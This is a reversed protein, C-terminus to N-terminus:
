ESITLHKLFEVQLKNKPLMGKVATRLVEAYGKKGIVHKMTSEKLGGPYGSFSLYTKEDLKQQAIKLKSANTVIVTNTSVTNRAFSTDNKGMLLTAVETAVRGMSKNTADITYEM